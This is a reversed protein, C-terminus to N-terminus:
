VWVAKLRNLKARRDALGNVGGNVPQTVAELNDAAAKPM